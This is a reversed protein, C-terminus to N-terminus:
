KSEGLYIQHLSDPMSAFMMQVITEASTLNDHLVWEKTMGVAGYCYLRISFLLRANLTDAGIMEKALETYKTAFYELMYQWLANQSTDEYARKYFLMDNKMQRMANAADHIDIINTKDASQFFIWAVLEYKDKFHYYFTSREIEAAQCIETIRIKDIPKKKMLEKMKDAIWLKTREAM